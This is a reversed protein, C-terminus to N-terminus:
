TYKRNWLDFLMGTTAGTVAAAMVSWSGFGLTMFMVCLSGTFVAIFIMLRNKIQFILIGIFMAALAYDLGFVKIDMFVGATVFGLCSSFIWAAHATFNTAQAQPYVAKHESFWMNHLAFTEDTLATSFLVRGWTPWRAISQSISTALLLHRLNIVFTTFAIALLSQGQVILSVAVFQSAGALVLLSMLFTAFFSLQAEHAMVGYALSLPIYGIVIPLAQIMGKFISQWKGTVQFVLNAHLDHTV